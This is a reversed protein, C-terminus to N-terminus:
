EPGLMKELRDIKHDLDRTDITRSCAGILSGLAAGESPTLQGVSVAATVAALAEVADSAYDLVPLDLRIAREKPLLRGLLFKLMDKDGAKALDIAVRVLEAAEDALLSAAILTAKNKAGPPRGSNGKKFPRGRRGPEENGSPATDTM